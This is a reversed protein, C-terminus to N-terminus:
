IHKHMTFIHAFYAISNKEQISRVDEDTKDHKRKVCRRCYQLLIKM